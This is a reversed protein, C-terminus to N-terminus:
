FFILEIGLLKNAAWAVATFIVATVVGRTVEGVWNIHREQATELEEVRRDDAEDLDKEINTLRRNIEVQQAKVVELGAFLTRLLEETM